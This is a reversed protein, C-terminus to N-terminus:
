FGRRRKVATVSTGSLSSLSIIKTAHNSTGHAPPHCATLRHDDELSMEEEEDEEFLKTTLKEEDLLKNTIDEDFLRAKLERYQWQQLLATDLGTHTPLDECFHRLDVLAQVTCASDKSCSNVVGADGGDGADGGGGGGGADGGGVGADGGDGGGGGGDGGGDGGGGDGGGGADGGGVGADGGDSSHTPHDPLGLHNLLSTHHHSSPLLPQNIRPRSHNRTILSSQSFSTTWPCCPQCM